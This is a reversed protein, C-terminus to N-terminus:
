FKLYELDRIEVEFLVTLISFDHSGCPGVFEECRPFYVAFSHPKSDNACYFFQSTGYRVPSEM